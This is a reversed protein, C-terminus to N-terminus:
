NIIQLVHPTTLGVSGFVGRIKQQKNPFNVGTERMTLEKESESDRNDGSEIRMLHRGSVNAAPPLFLIPDHSRLFWVIVMGPPTKTDQSTQRELSSILPKMM